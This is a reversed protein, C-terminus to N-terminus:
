KSMYFRETNEKLVEAMEEVNKGYVEAMKKVVERVHAPENRQGRFPVPTVYPCDTESMIRDIPTNKILVEYDQAFTIVGTYSVYWGLDMIEKLNDQDGAFFHFNVRLTKGEREQYEKLVDITERYANRCHIMLPLDLEIALEIHGRFSEEQAHKIKAHLSGDQPLRFFDLGTEGIGIVEDKQALEFYVDWDFVEGPEDNDQECEDGAFVYLPHLGVIAKCCESKEAIEIAKQSTKQNTGVNFVTVDAEEIRTLLESLDDIYANMNLHAHTDIYQTSIKM